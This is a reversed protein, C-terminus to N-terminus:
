RMRKAKIEMYKNITNISLNEPTTLIVQIGNARLEIAIKEKDVISRQAFTKYYIDKITKTESIQAHEMETNIFMIVVLLHKKNIARLYKLNRSMDDRQEFNTFFLLISRRSLQRRLTYNLLEFNSESFRTKENYLYTIIKQLQNSKSSAKLIVGIKDSFTILGGNDHKKLVINSLVLSTNIAYDLLTMKNFPMKMSRGKDIIMYVMQSRSNEYRNVMLENKRSTAKWNISKISDGQSYKSIHEFEDNQGIQRVKRIGSLSATKSFFQLEYRKMQLISPYVEIIKECHKTKKRQLLNLLKTSIYIHLNGFEYKGRKTPFIKYQITQEKENTLAGTKIYTRHQLQKPLDDTLEFLLKLHGKYSYNYLINQEDGLSLKENVHRNINVMKLNYKLLLYDVLSAISLIIISSKSLLDTFVNSYSYSIVFLIICIGLLLYFKNTFYLNMRKKLIIFTFTALRM